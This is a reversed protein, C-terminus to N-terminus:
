KSGSHESVEVYQCRGKSFKQERYIKTENGAEFEAFQICESSVLLMYM